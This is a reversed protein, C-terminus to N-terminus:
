ASCTAVRLLSLLLMHAPYISYAIRRPVRVTTDSPGLVYILPYALFALLYLPQSYLLAWACYLPLCAFIGRWTPGPRVLLCYCQLITAVAFPGGDVHALAALLLLAAAPLPWLSVGYISPCNEFVILLLLAIVFTGGVNIKWPTRLMMSYPIQSVLTFGIMRVLYQCTTGKQRTRHYGVAVGYSFIPMSARGIARLWLCQPFFCLGVHDILMTIYAIVKIM